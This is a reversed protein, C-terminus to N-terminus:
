SFFYYNMCFWPVRSIASFVLNFVIECRCVKDGSTQPNMGQHSNTVRLCVVLSPRWCCQLTGIVLIPKQKTKKTELNFCCVEYSVHYQSFFFISEGELELNLHFMHRKHFDKTRLFPIVTSGRNDPSTPVETFLGSLRSDPYDFIHIYILCCLLCFFYLYRM